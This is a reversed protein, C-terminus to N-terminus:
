EERKAQAFADALTAKKFPEMKARAEDMEGKELDTEYQKVSLGIRHETPDLKVIKMTLEQATTFEKQIDEVRKRSLESVHVLGEIGDGLDVFAGFDTLRAIKGTVTDGVRHGDFFQEWVNPEMQKVGLSMRQNLPDLNLVKATVSDGKKVVEGPHKIKKTWSFDSVHILGDIGEELEVFAGFETINRVTGTVIQGINYKEAVEMWPNPTVQKMGLSIRRSEVDVQLIVAEVMDGLNVMGKASKVKKTWSMESVHVLGEVGPELEVFAGYDTISVVKGKVSANMPFREEVTLWPDAFKQKYGLSVRETDKDYKLIAVEVKDGVQFMESPHNLRGWSMDTIHLLGDVGGLDIFAGYETINKVTGEVLKGEELGALTEEKLSANITEMFLKRSLVINGRRRNVKIVKMDYSKGLYPDLNRVPKVDVQSGPLFARIGIDVALGGKVKELVVGHVTMNSRFAKEVEDWIKMKEARERSLRVNGNVDELHEVLVEVVDGVAVGVSGDPNNFEDINVTGSGKYGIDVIVDKGRIEVVVGKVVEEERLARTEGQLADLFEQTESSEDELLAADLVKIRGVQKSDLGLIKNLKSM